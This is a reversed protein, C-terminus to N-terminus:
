GLDREDAMRKYKAELRDFVRHAEAVRGTRMDDFSRDIAADLDRLWALSDDARNQDHRVERM